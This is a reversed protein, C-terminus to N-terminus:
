KVHSWRKGLAIMNITSKSVGVEAAIKNQREGNRLRQKIIAVIEETLLAQPNLTGHQPASRGKAVMDASNDANTGLWLHDPNVCLVNDCTHLVCMENTSGKYLVYSVRSALLNTGLVLKARGNKKFVGGTWLWCEYEEDKTWLNTFRRYIDEIASDDLLLIEDASRVLSIGGKWNPNNESSKDYYGAM